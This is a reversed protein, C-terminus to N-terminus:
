LIIRTGKIYANNVYENESGENNYNYQFCYYNISESSYNDLYIKSMQYKLCNEYSHFHKLKKNDFLYFGTKDKYISFLYSEVSYGDQIQLVYNKYDLYNLNEISKKIIDFNNSKRNNYYFQKLISTINKPKM